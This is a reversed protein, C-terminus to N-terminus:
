LLGALYDSSWNQLPTTFLSEQLISNTQQDSIEAQANIHFSSVGITRTLPAVM